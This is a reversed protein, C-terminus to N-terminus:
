ARNSIRIYGDSLVEEVESKRVERNAGQGQDRSGVGRYWGSTGVVTVVHTGGGVQANGM